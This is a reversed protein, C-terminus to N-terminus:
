FLDHRHREGDALTFLTQITQKITITKNVSTGTDAAISNLNDMIQWYQKDDAFRSMQPSTIGGVNNATAWAIRSDAPPAENRKLKGTLFGRDVVCM